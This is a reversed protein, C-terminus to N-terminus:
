EDMAGTAIAQTVSAAAQRPAAKLADRDFHALVVAMGEARVARGYAKRNASAGGTVVAVKGKFDRIGTVEQAAFYVL